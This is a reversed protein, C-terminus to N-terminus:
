VNKSRKKMVNPVTRQQWLNLMWKRIAPLVSVMFPV